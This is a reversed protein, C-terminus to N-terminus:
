EARIHEPDLRATTGLTTVWALVMSAVVALAALMLGSTLPVVQDNDLQLYTM